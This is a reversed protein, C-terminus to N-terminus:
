EAACEVVLLRVEPQLQVARAVFSEASALLLRSFSSGAVNTQNSICEYLTPQDIFQPCVADRAASAYLCVTPPVFRHKLAGNTSDTRGTSFPKSGSAM